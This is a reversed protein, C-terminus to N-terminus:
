VCEYRLCGGLKWLYWVFFPISIISFTLIYPMLMASFIAYALLDMGSFNWLEPAYIQVWSVYLVFLLCILMPLNLVCVLILQWRAKMSALASRMMKKM